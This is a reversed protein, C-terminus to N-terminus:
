FILILITNTHLIYIVLIDVISILISFALELLNISLVNIYLVNNYLTIVLIEIENKIRQIYCSISALILSLISDSLM